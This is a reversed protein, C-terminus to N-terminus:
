DNEEEKPPTEKRTEPSSHKLLWLVVKEIIMSLLVIVLTWCFIDATELYVKSDFLRSGIGLKPRAFVEGAIGAKWAFGISTSLATILHPHISPFYIFRLKRMPSLRFVYAMELLEVDADEIGQRVAETLIPFVMLFCIFISLNYSKIWVLALIVLSTVPTAKIVSLLPSFLTRAAPSFASLIGCFIGCVAGLLYGKAIRILSIGINQWFPYIGALEILRRLVALPSVLLLSSNLTRAAIEWVLLWFLISLLIGTKSAKGGKHVVFVGGDGASTSRSVTRGFFKAPRTSYNKKDHLISIMRLCHAASLPLRM